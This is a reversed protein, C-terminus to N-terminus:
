WPPELSQPFEVGCIGNVLVPLGVDTDSEDERFVAHWPSLTVNVAVTAAV